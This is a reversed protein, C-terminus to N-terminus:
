KYRVLLLHRVLVLVQGDVVIQDMMEQFVLLVQPVPHDLHVPHDVQDLHVQAVVRDQLVQHGQHVALDQLAVQELLVRLDVVEQVVVQDLHVPHEVVELHVLHVLLVQYHGLYQIHTM